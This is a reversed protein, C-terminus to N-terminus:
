VLAVIQALTHSVKYRMPKREGLYVYVYSNAAENPVGVAWAVAEVPVSLTISLAKDTEGKAIVTLDIVENTVVGWLAAKLAVATTSVALNSRNNEKKTGWFIYNVERYSTKDNYDSIYKGNMLVDKGDILPFRDKNTTVAIVGLKEAM